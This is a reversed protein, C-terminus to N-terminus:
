NVIFPKKNQFNLTNNRNRAGATRIRRRTKRTEDPFLKNKRRADNINAGCSRKAPRLSAFVMPAATIAIIMVALVTVTPSRTSEFIKIPLAICLFYEIVATIVMRLMNKTKMSSMRRSEKPFCQKKDHLKLAQGDQHIYYIYPSPYFIGWPSNKQKYYILKSFMQSFSSFDKM